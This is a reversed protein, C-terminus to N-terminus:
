ARMTAQGQRPQNRKKGTPMRRLNARHPVLALSPAHQNPSAADRRVSIQGCGVRGHHWGEEEKREFCTRWPDACPAPRCGACCPARAACRGGRPRWPALVPRGRRLISPPAGPLRPAQSAPTNHKTHMSISGRASLQGSRRRGNSCLDGVVGAVAATVLLATGGTCCGCGGASRQLLCGRCLSGRSRRRLRRRAAPGRQRGQLGLHRRCLPQAPLAAVGQRRKLQLHPSAGRAAAIGEANGTGWRSCGQGDPGLALARCSSSGRRCSSPLHRDRKQRRPRRQQRHSAACTCAGGRAAARPGPQAAPRVRRGFLLRSARRCAARLEKKNCEERM